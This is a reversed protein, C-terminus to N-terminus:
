KGMNELMKIKNYNKLYLNNNRDFRTVTSDSRALENSKFIIRDYFDLTKVLRKEQTTHPTTSSGSPPDPKVHTSM